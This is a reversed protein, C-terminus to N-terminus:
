FVCIKNILIQRQARGVSGILETPKESCGKIIGARPLCKMLKIRVQELKKQFQDYQKSLLQCVEVHKTKLYNGLKYIGLFTM